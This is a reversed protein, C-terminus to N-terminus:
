LSWGGNATNNEKGSSSGNIYIIDVKRKKQLPDRAFFENIRKLNGGTDINQKGSIYKTVKVKCTAKRIYHM